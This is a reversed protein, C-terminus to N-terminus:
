ISSQFGATTEQGHEIEDLIRRLSHALVADDLRRIVDLPESSIDALPSETDDAPQDM